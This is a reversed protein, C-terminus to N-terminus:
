FLGSIESFADVQIDARSLDQGGSGPNRYGITLLGASAAAELGATSDEVAFAQGASLGTLELGRLYVDPAPKKRPVEDGGVFFEFYSGIKLLELMEVLYFRASSSCVVLRLGKNKLRELLEVLGPSPSLREKAATEIILEYQRRELEELSMGSLGNDALVELWFDRNPRGVFREYAPRRVAGLRDALIEKARHHLPETDALVGDFDFAALVLASLKGPHINPSKNEPM